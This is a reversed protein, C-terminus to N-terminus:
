PKSSSATAEAHRSAPSSMTFNSLYALSMLSPIEQQVSEIKSLLLDCNQKVAIFGAEACAPHNLFLHMSLPPIITLSHLPIMQAYFDKHYHM